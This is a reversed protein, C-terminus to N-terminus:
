NFEHKFQSKIVAGIELPVLKRVNDVIALIYPYDIENYSCLFM